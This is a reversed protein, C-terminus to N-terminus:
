APAHSEQLKLTPRASSVMYVTTDVTSGGADCIMFTNGAQLGKEINTHYICFHVSAEAETVFRINMSAKSPSVLGADLAAARLFSQERLGWGNPHALIVEM